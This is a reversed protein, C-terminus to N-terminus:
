PLARAIVPVTYGAAFAITGLAAVLTTWWMGRACRLAFATIARRRSHARLRAVDRARYALEHGRVGASPRVRARVRQADDFPSCLM